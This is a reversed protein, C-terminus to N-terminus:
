KLRRSLSTADLNCTCTNWISFNDAKLLIIQVFTVFWRNTNKAFTAKAFLCASQTRRREVYLFCQGHSGHEQLSQFSLFGLSSTTQRLETSIGSFGNSKWTNVWTVICPQILSYSLKELERRRFWGSPREGGNACIMLAQSMLWHVSFVDRCDSRLWVCDLLLNSSLEDTHAVFFARASIHTQTRAHTYQTRTHLTQKYTHKTRAGIIKNHSLKGVLNTCSIDFISQITRVNNNGFAPLFHCLGLLQRNCSFYQVM